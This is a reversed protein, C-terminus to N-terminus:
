KKAIRRRPRKELYNSLETKIESFAENLDERFDSDSKMNKTLRDSSYLNGRRDKVAEMASDFMETVKAPYNVVGRLRNFGELFDLVNDISPQKFVRGCAGNRSVEKMKGTKPDLEAQGKKIYETRSVMWELYKMFQALYEDEYSKLTEDFRQLRTNVAQQYAEPSIEALYNPPDINPWEYSFRIAGEWTSPYDTEDYKDKLRVKADDLVEQRRTTLDRLAADLNLQMRAMTEIFTEIDEKKILRIADKKGEQVYPIRATSEFFKKIANVAASVNKIPEIKSSYLKKGAGTLGDVTMGVAEAAIQKEENSLGVSSSLSGTQRLKLAATLEALQECAATDVNNREGDPTEVQDPGFDLMSQEKEESVTAM